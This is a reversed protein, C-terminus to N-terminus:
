FYYFYLILSFDENSFAGLYVLKSQDIQDECQIQDGWRVGGRPFDCFIVKLLKERGNERLEGWCLIEKNKIRKEAFTVDFYNCYNSFPFKRILLFLCFRVRIQIRKFILSHSFQSSFGKRFIPINLLLFQIDARITFSRYRQTQKDRGTTTPVPQVPPPRLTGPRLQARVRGGGSM